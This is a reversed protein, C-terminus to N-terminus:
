VRGLHEKVIKHVRELIGAGTAAVDPLTIGRAKAM